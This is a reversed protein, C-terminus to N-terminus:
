GGWIAAVWSMFWETRAWFPLAVKMAGGEDTELAIKQALMVDGAPLFGKPAFCWGRFPRGKKDLEYVNQQTRDLDTQACRPRPYFARRHLPPASQL